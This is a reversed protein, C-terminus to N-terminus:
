CGTTQVQVSGFSMPTDLIYANSAGIPFGGKRMVFNYDLDDENIDENSPVSVWLKRLGDGCCKCYFLGTVCRVLVNLPGHLVVAIVVVLILVVLFVGGSIFVFMYNCELDLCSSTVNVQNTSNLYPASSSTGSESEISLTYTLNLPYQVGNALVASYLGRRNDTVNFHSFEFYYIDSSNNLRYEDMRDSNNKLLNIKSQGYFTWTALVPRPNARVTFNVVITEGKVLPYVRSQNVLPYVRSQDAADYLEPDCDVEVEINNEVTSHNLAANNNAQCVYNGGDECGADTVRYFSSFGDVPHQHRGYKDTLNESHINVGDKYWKVLPPPFGDVSCMLTINTSMKTFSVSVNRSPYNVLIEITQNERQNADQEFVCTYNGHDPIEVPHLLLTGGAHFFTDDGEKKWSLSCSSTCQASCSVSANMGAVVEWPSPRNMTMLATGLGCVGLLFVGAYCSTKMAEVTIATISTQPFHKSKTLKIVCIDVRRKELSTIRKDYSNGYQQTCSFPKM